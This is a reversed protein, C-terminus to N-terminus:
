TSLLSKPAVRAHIRSLFRERDQFHCCLHLNLLIILFKYIFRVLLLEIRLLVELLGLLKVWKTELSLELWILLLVEIGLLLVELILLYIM